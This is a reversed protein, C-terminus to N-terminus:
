RYLFKPRTSFRLEGPIGDMIDRVGFFEEFLTVSDSMRVEVDHIFPVDRFLDM